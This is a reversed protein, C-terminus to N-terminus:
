ARLLRCGRLVLSVLHWIEPNLHFGGRFTLEDCHRLRQAEGNGILQRPRPSPQADSLAALPLIGKRRKEGTVHEKACFPDVLCGLVGQARQGTEDSKEGGAVPYQREVIAVLGSEQM